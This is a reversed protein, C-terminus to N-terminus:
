IDCLGWKISVSTVDGDMQRDSPSHIPSASNKRSAFMIRTFFRAYLYYNKTKLLFFIIIETNSRIESFSSDRTTWAPKSTIELWYTRRSVTFLFSPSQTGLIKTWPFYMLCGLLQYIHFNTNLTFVSVILVHSTNWIVSVGCSKAKHPSTCCCM